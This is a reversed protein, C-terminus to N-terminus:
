TRGLGEQAFGLVQIDDASESESSMWTAHVAAFGAKRADEVVEPDDDLFSKVEMSRRLEVLAQVKLLRAPRRDRDSRMLLTAAPFGHETLWDQTAARCREPRGTLYVIDLGSALAEEIWARGQSLVGDFVAADFFADWDRPSSKVLHLRHRVDALVGDIDVVAVPVM